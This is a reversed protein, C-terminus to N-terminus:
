RILLLYSMLRPLHCSECEWSFPARIKLVPFYSMETRHQQVKMVLVLRNRETMKKRKYEVGSGSIIFFISCLYPFIFIKYTINPL